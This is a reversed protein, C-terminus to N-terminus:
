AASPSGSVYKPKAARTTGSFTVSSGLVVLWVLPPPSQLSRMTMAFFPSVTPEIKRSSPAWGSSILAIRATSPGGARSPPRLSPWFSRTSMAAAPMPWMCGSRTMMAPSQGAIAGERCRRQGVGAFINGDIDAIDVGLHGRSVAFVLLVVAGAHPEILAEVLGRQAVVHRIGHDLFQDADVGVIDVELAFHLRAIGEVHEIGVILVAVALVLHAVGREGDAALRLFIIM